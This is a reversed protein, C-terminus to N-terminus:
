IVSVKKAAKNAFQYVIKHGSAGTASKAAPQEKKQTALQVPVPSLNNSQIKQPTAAQPAPKVLSPKSSGSLNQGSLNEGPLHSETQRPQLEKQSKHSVIDQLSVGDYM